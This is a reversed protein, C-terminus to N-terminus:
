TKMIIAQMACNKTNKTYAIRVASAKITHAYELSANALNGILMLLRPNM